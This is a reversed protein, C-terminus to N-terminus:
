STTSYISVFSGNHGADILIDDVLLVRGVQVIVVKQYAPIPAGGPCGTELAVTGGNGAARVQYAVVPACQGSGASLVPNPNGQGAFARQYLADVFSKLRPTYPCSNVDSPATDRHTDCLRGTPSMTAEAVALLEASTVGATPSPTPARTATTAPLIAVPLPTPAVSTPPPTMAPASALQANHIVIGAVVVAAATAFVLSGLVIPRFRSPRKTSFDRATLKALGAPLQEHEIHSYLAALRREIEHDNPRETM